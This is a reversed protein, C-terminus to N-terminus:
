LGSEIRQQLNDLQKVMSYVGDYNEKTLEFEIGQMLKFLEDFGYNGSTGKLEHIHKKFKDWQKYKSSEKIKLIYQPLKDAFRQVLDLLGPEDILLSSILPQNSEKASDTAKLYRSIIKRFKVQSLPKEMFDDCGAKTCAEMDEKLVNATLAVIPLTYKMKRLYKTAELGGMVPMQMDMLVLDFDNELAKEVAEKGNSALVVKAGLKKLYMSVLRQNDINDEALLIMGTLTTEIEDTISQSSEIKIDPAETLLNIKRVDGVDISTTFCSGVEPTSEIYIDGGLKIALEQSLHLGLGTGGYKRTTSSDAQTFASFLKDVQEKTLGIGTDVVEFLLKADTSNYLVKVNVGGSHTFKVANSCINIIIQKLRVPDTIIIEPLPFVYEVNLFLGKEEAMLNILSCVDDLLEFPSVELSEVELKDAEVKSLDLIDNIIQMLHKGSRIITHISEVREPMSQSTDLLSESFGIIATLPTRIEHSMNALFSSKATNAAEAAIKELKASEALAQAEKRQTIELAYGHVLEQNAVPAFTWLFNHGKYISEVAKVTHHEHICEHIITKIDDPLLVSMHSQLIGFKDLLEKGYPNLYGVDGKVDMSLVINPNMEPFAALREKETLANSIQLSQAYLNTSASNLSLGLHELETSNNNVEVQKGKIVNLQDSFTTYREITKISKRLYLLLLLVSFAIVIAGKIFLERIVKDQRGVVTQLTFTIKVWGILEGLIVPQWVIMFEHEFVVKGMINEPLMLNPQAYKFEIDGQNNRSVNGLLKGVEDSLQIKNIAPFKITRELLQEISSYDRSLMHVATVAALNEALVKAQTQLNDKITKVQENAAHWIFFTMSLALLFSVYLVIQLGLKKPWIQRSIFHIINKNKQM